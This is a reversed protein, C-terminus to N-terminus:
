FSFIIEIMRDRTLELKNVVKIDYREIFDNYLGNTIDINFNAIIYEQFTFNKNKIGKYKEFLDLLTEDKLRYATIIKKM